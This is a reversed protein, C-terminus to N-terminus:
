LKARVTSGEAVSTHPTGAGADGKHFWMREVVEGDTVPPIRKRYVCGIDYSFSTDTSVCLQHLIQDETAGFKAYDMNFYHEGKQLNEIGENHHAINLVYADFRAQRLQAWNQGAAQYTRLMESDLELPPMENDSADELAPLDDDDEQQAQAPEESIKEAPTEALEM